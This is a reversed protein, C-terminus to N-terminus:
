KRRKSIESLGYQSKRSCSEESSSIRQFCEIWFNSLWSINDSELLKLQKRFGVPVIKMGEDFFTGLEKTEFDHLSREFAEKILEDNSDCLIRLTSIEINARTLIM